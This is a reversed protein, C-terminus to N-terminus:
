AEGRVRMRDSLSPLAGAVRRAEVWPQGSMFAFVEEVDYCQLVVVCGERAGLPDHDLHEFADFYCRCKLLWEKARASAYWYGIARPNPHGTTLVLEHKPLPAPINNMNGGTEPRRDETM